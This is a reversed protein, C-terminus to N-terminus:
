KLNKDSQAIVVGGIKSSTTLVTVFCSVLVGLALFLSPVTKYNITRM